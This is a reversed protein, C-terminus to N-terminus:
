QENKNEWATMVTRLFTRFQEPSLGAEHPDIQLEIGLAIFVHSHMRIAGPQSEREPV